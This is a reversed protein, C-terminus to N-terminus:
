ARLMCSAMSTSSAACASALDFAAPGDDAVDVAYGPEELGRRLADALKREDEVVLIRM